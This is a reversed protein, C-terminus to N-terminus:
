TEEAGGMAWCQWFHCNALRDCDLTAGRSHITQDLKQIGPRLQRLLGEQWRQRGDQKAYYGCFCIKGHGAFFESTFNESCENAQIWGGAVPRSIPQIDNFFQFLAERHKLQSHRLEPGMEFPPPLQQKISCPSYITQSFTSASTFALIVPLVYRGVSIAQFISACNLM